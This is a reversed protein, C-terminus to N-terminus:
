KKEQKLYSNIFPYIDGDLVKYFQKITKETRHDKVQQYPDLVYSRIQNGWNATKLKGRAQQAAKKSVKERVTALKAALIKLALQKNKLQSKENQMKVTVKTPIHTIRVASDTTNVSQGGPGSSRFTEIKLDKDKLNVEKEEIEPMVEVLAFSTQRLNQANFPSKRVLRHVGSESKLYGFVSGGQVFITVNKLGAEKGARKDIIKANWGQNKSFRLYMRLLMEVWDQADVGGTGASIVLYANHQDYKGQLIAQTELKALESDTQANDFNAILSKIQTLKQSIKTAKNREKWFAPKAMLAEIEKIQEEKESIKLLEGLEKKDM